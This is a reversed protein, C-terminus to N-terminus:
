VTPRVGITFLDLRSVEGVSVNPCLKTSQGSLIVADAHHAKEQLQGVTRMKVLTAAAHVSM